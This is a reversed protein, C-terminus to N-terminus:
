WLPVYKYIGKFFCITKKKQKLVVLSLSIKEMKKLHPPAAEKQLCVFLMLRRTFSTVMAMTTPSFHCRGEALLLSTPPPKRSFNSSISPLFGSLFSLIKKPEPSFGSPSFFIVAYFFPSLPFSLFLLSSLSM